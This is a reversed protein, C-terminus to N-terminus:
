SFDLVPERRDSRQDRVDYLTHGRPARDIYQPHSVRIPTAASAPFVGETCAGGPDLMGHSLNECAYRDAKGDRVIGDPESEKTSRQGNGYASPRHM